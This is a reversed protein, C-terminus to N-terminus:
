AAVEGRQGRRRMLFEAFALDLESDIDVAREPPVEVARVIGAFLSDAGLVYAPRWAYAVTAINYIPPADQRRHIPAPSPM